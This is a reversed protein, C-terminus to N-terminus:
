YNKASLNLILVEVILEDSTWDGSASVDAGGGGGIVIYKYLAHEPPGNISVVCNGAEKSSVEGVATVLLSTISNSAADFLDSVTSALNPDRLPSSITILWPHVVYVILNGCSRFVLSRSLTNPASAM